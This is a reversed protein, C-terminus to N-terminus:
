SELVDVPMTFLTPPKHRQAAPSPMRTASLTVATCTLSSMPTFLMSRSSSPFYKIRLTVREEVHGMPATILAASIAAILTFCQHELCFTCLASCRIHLQDFLSLACMLRQSLRRVREAWRRAVSCHLPLALTSADRCTLYQLLRTARCLLLGTASSADICVRAISEPLTRGQM